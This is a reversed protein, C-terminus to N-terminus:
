CYSSALCGAQWVGVICVCICAFDYCRCLLSSRLCKKQFFIGRVKNFPNHTLPLQLGFLVAVYQGGNKNGEANHREREGPNSLRLSPSGARQQTSAKEVVDQRWSVSKRGVGLKIITWHGVWYRGMVPWRFTDSGGDKSHCTQDDNLSFLQWATWLDSEEPAHTQSQVM